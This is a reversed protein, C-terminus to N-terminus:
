CASTWVCKAQIIEVAVPPCSCAIKCSQRLVEFLITVVGLCNSFNEMWTFTCKPDYAEFMILEVTITNFKHVTGTLQAQLIM